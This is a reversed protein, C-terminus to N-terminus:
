KTNIQINNLNVHKAGNNNNIIKIVIKNHNNLIIMNQLTNNIVKM